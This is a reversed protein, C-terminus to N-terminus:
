RAIMSRMIDASNEANNATLGILEVLKILYFVTLGDLGISFIFKKLKHEMDDADNEMLRIKRIMGKVHVRIDEDGTEFYSRSALVLSPLMASIAVCHDLLEEIGQSVDAHFPTQYYTIWKLIDEACGAIADQKNLYVFFEFKDIPMIIGRPMHARVNRKILDAKTELEGVKDFREKFIDMNNSSFARVAEAANILSDHVVKAHNELCELPERRTKDDDCIHHKERVLEPGQEQYEVSEESENEVRIREHKVMRGEELFIVDEAINTALDAIREINLAQFIRSVGSKVASARTEMGSIESKVIRSYMKDVRYDQKLVKRAIEADGYVFSNISDALMTVAINAIEELDDTEAASSLNRSLFLLQEGINVSHDGVRELQEAIMMSSTLFRLDSAMPQRLAMTKIVLRGIENEMQDIEWDNEVVKRALETDHRQSALLVTRVAEEVLMSMRLIYNKIDAIDKQIMSAM